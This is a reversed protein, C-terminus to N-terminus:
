APFKLSPYDTTFGDVGIARAEELQDHTNVMWVAFQLDLRHAHEVLDRNTGPWGCLVRKAGIRAAQDVVDPSGTKSILGSTCSPLLDVMTAVVIPDFCTPSIRPFESPRQRLLDVLATIARSDKIEVQLAVETEDLVQEFSPVQEGDGADFARIEDFTLDAVAGTGSTTRDVAADHMIVLAGDASLRVDLELEDAGDRVAQHFSAMTNEPMTGLAGRHGTNIPEM